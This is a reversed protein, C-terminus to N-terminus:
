TQLQCVFKRVFKRDITTVPQVQIKRRNEKSKEENECNKVVNLYLTCGKNFRELLKSNLKQYIDLLHTTERIAIYKLKNPLPRISWDFDKQRSNYLNKESEPVFMKILDDLNPMSWSQAYAVYYEDVPRSTQKYVVYNHSLAANIHDNPARYEYSDLVNDNFDELFYLLRTVNNGYEGIRKEKMM